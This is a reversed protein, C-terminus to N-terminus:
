KNCERTVLLLFSYILLVIAMAYSYPNYFLICYLVIFKNVATLLLVCNFM